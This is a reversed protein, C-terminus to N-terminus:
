REAIRLVQVVLGGEALRIELESGPSVQSARTLVQGEFRALAYGRELVRQPSMAELRAALEGLRSRRRDLLRQLAPALRTLSPGLREARRRLLQAMAQDLRSSLLDVKQAQDRLRLLPSARLLRQELLGLRRLPQKLAMQLSADLRRRHQAIEEQWENCPRLIMEAAASPTPARLDAAFDCLSFDVEHGIASVTPIPCAAVARVLEEENFAWLDELSGGGRTLVLVEDDGKNAAWRLARAANAAAERGQVLSPYIRIRVGPFRRCLVQIFDRLAAGEPSTIVGIRRPLLPLPKKRDPDFLGEARLREKLAEFAAQLSGQGCPRALRIILQLQGREAHFGPRAMAEISMGERLGGERWSNAGSFWVCSLAAGSDKLTFYVHGSPYVKAQSIEGSVWFPPMANEIRDRLIAAAASVSIIEAEAM